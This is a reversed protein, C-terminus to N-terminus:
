NYSAAMLKYVYVYTSLDDTYIFEKNRGDTAIYEWMNSPRIFLNITAFLFLFIYIHTLAYAYINRFVYIYSYRYIYLYIYMNVCVYSYIYSYIDKNIYRYM